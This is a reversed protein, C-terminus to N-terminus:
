TAPPCVMTDVKERLGQAGAGVKRLEEQSGMPGNMKWSGAVLPRRTTMRKEGIFSTGGRTEDGNRGPSATLLCVAGTSPSIAAHVAGPGAGLRPVGDHRWSSCGISSVNVPTM